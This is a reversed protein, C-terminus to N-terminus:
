DPEPVCRLTVYYATDPAHGSGSAIARVEYRRKPSSCDVTLFPTITQTHEGTSTGNVATWATCGAFPTCARIGWPKFQPYLLGAYASYTYYGSTSIAKPGGMSIHGAHAAEASTPSMDASTPESSCATGFLAVSALLASATRKATTRRM